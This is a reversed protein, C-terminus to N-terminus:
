IASGSAAEHVAKEARKKAEAAEKAEQDAKMKAKFEDFQKKMNQLLGLVEEPTRRVVKRYAHGDPHKTNLSNPNILVPAQSKEEVETGDEKTVMKTVDFTVVQSQELMKQWRSQVGFLEKSLANLENRLEREVYM